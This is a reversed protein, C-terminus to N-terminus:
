RLVVVRRSVNFNEGTIVVFYIGSSLGTVDLQDNINGTYQRTMVKTGIGNTLTLAVSASKVFNVELNLLNTTPNPYVSFNNVYQTENTGTVDEVTFPGFSKNCGNGDTIVCTYSGAGLNSINSTTAGNSWLYALNGTGGEAVLNIAGLNKSNSDNIISVSAAKIASPETITVTKTATANTADTIVVTYVGPALGSLTAQSSTFGNPGTWAYVFPEAGGSVSASAQGNNDGFCVVNQSTATAVLVTSYVVTQCVTNSGCETTVTLCVNYTGPALVVSPNAETSTMGNGFNWAYTTTSGSAAAMGAFTGANLTYQYAGNATNIVEDVVAVSNAVCGNSNKTVQMNYSGDANVVPTLTNAGSVINGNATTWLITFDSVNGMVSGQLTVESQVCTINAPDAIATQPLDGSTSVVANMTTTCGNAATVSAPYTGAANVTVCSGQSNQGNVNWTVTLGSTATACLEVSNVVCTLEGNTVSLSPLAIDANVTATSTSVCGNASDTVQLVYTGGASVTAVLQDAGSVITGNQTTWAYAISAGTASGTGSVQTQTAACTITGLAAAVATPGTIANITFEGSTECGQIDSTSYNYTGPTLGPFVGSSQTGAGISYSYQGSGGTATITATGSTQGCPIQPVSVSATVQTPQELEVFTEFACGQADTVTVYHQGAAINTKTPTTQGNDWLYSYGGNGFVGLVGVSGNSDGFCTPQQSASPYAELPALVGGVIIPDTVVQYNNADTITCIYYGPQLNSIDKTNNGNNWAYTKNGYGATVDLTIAGDGGCVADTVSADAALKFSQIVYNNLVTGSVGGGGTTYSKKNGASIMFVTPYASIQYLSAITPGGTHTIPYPTGTVWDGQTGGVCGSPGYLCALNTSPDGEAFIVMVDGTGSPGYTNYFNELTGSNHYSWCPGCWTASVDIVVSIGSNLYDYLDHTNGDLDTVVFQPATSGSPLQGYNVNLFSFVVLFTLLFHKM